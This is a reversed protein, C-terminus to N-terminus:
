ARSGSLDPATSATCLGSELGGRSGSPAQRFGPLPRTGDMADRRGHESAYCPAEESRRNRRGRLAKALATVILAVIVAGCLIAGPADNISMLPAMANYFDVSAMRAYQPSLSSLALPLAGLAGVVAGAIPWAVPLRGPVDGGQAIM